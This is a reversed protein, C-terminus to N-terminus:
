SAVANILFTMSDHPCAFTDSIVFQVSSAIDILRDFVLYRCAYSTAGIGLLRSITQWNHQYDPWTSLSCYFSFVFVFVFKYVYCVCVCVCVCLYDIIVLCQCRKWWIFISKYTSKIKLNLLYMEYILWLLLWHGPVTCTVTNALLM